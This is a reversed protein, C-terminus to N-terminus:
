LVFSLYHERRVPISGTLSSSLISSLWSYRSRIKDKLIFDARAPLPLRAVRWSPQLPIDFNLLILDHKMFEGKVSDDSVQTRRILASVGAPTGFRFRRILITERISPLTIVSLSYCIAGFSM